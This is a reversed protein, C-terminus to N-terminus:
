LLFNKNFFNDLIKILILYSIIHIIAKRSTVRHIETVSNRISQTEYDTTLAQNKKRNEKENKCPNCFFFNFIQMSNVMETYNITKYITLLKVIITICIENQIAIPYKLPSNM